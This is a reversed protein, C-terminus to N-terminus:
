DIRYQTMSNEETEIVGKPGLTIALEPTFMTWSDTDGNKLQYISLKLEDDFLLTTTEFKKDSNIAKVKKGLLMQIQNKIEERSYESSCIMTDGKFIDWHAIGVMLSFDAQLTIKKSKVGQYKHLEGFDLLIAYGISNIIKSCEKNMLLELNKKLILNNM